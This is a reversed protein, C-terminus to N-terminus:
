KVLHLRQLLNYIPQFLKMLLLCFIVIVAGPWGTGAVDSTICDLLQGDSGGADHVVCCPLWNFPGLGDPFGTCHGDSGLPPPILTSATDMTM